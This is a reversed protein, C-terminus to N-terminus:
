LERQMAEFMVMLRDHEIKSSSVINIDESTLTYNKYKNFFSKIEDLKNELADVSKINLVYCWDKDLINNDEKYNILIPFGMAIYERVEKLPSAESLGREHLALTGICIDIKELINLYDSRSLYGYYFLNKKNLGKTGVIHFDYDPLLESM